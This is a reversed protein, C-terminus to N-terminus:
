KLQHLYLYISKLENNTFTFEKWPMITSLHKGEPTEGTHFVHIFQQDNWRGIDGTSTINPIAPENKAHSPAGKFNQGHCGQCTTALYQGYSATVTPQIKGKYVANHNIMEAPLLPYQNFFTLVRGLPKISHPTIIKDVTPQQKLFCILDELEENSIHYIEHSPMFWVSKNQRNLGHRLVRIWDQDTYNIGGKGSTLNATYLVGLPSQADMFARGMALNSGHCGMCG